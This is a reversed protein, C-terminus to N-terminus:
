CVFGEFEKDYSRGSIKKFHAELEKRELLM